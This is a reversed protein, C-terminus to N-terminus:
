IGDKNGTNNIKLEYEQQQEFCIECMVTNKYSLQKVALRGCKCYSQDHTLRYIINKYQNNQNM